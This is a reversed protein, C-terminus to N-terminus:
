SAQESHIGDNSMYNVCSVENWTGLVVCPLIVYTLNSYQCNIFVVIRQSTYIVTKYCQQPYTKSM